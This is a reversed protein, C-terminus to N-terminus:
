RIIAGVAAGIAIDGLRKWISNKRAKLQAILADQAAISADKATIADNKAAIADRLAATEAKRTENLEILMANASRETALRERLAANERELAAILRRSLALEDSHEAENSQGAASATLLVGLLM